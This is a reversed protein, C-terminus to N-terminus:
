KPYIIDYNQFEKFKKFIIEYEHCRICFFITGDDTRCKSQFYNKARNGYLLLMSFDIISGVFCGLLTGIVPIAKIGDDIVLATATMFSGLLLGKIVDFIIVKTLMQGSQETNIYEDNEENKKVYKEGNLISIIDNKSIKRWAYGYFSAIKIIATGILSIMIPVDCFPIPIAGSGGAILSLSGILAKSKFDGYKIIDEQTLFEDFLHTKHKIYQLKQDFTKREVIGKILSENYIEKGDVLNLCSHLKQFIKKMGFASRGVLNCTLINSDNNEVLADM